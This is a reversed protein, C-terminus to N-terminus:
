ALFDLMAQAVEEGHTWLIGHPGGQITALKSGPIAEHTLKGSGAFPVIRDDDGHIVLVPIQIKALDGRFDTLWAQICDHTAIASAGVAVSWTLRIVEESLREGLFVDANYLNQFVEQLFRPRDNRVAEQMGDFMAQDGGTPNDATKLLFPPIAGIFGAKAVRGAGYTGLYRAVEGGGMSFGFIAADRLDLKTM